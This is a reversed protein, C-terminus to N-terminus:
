LPAGFARLIGVKARFNVKEAPFAAPQFNEITHTMSKLTTM